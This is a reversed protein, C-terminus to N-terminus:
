KGIDEVKHQLGNYFVPNTLWHAADTEYSTHAAGLMMGQLCSGILQACSRQLDILWVWSNAPQPLPLLTPDIHEPTGLVAM